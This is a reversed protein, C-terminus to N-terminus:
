SRTWATGNWHLILTTGAAGNSFVGGVAWIDTASLASVSRLGSSTGFFPAKAKTWSTGDWHLVLPKGATGGDGVDHGYFGVAWADTASVAAVGMLSNFVSSGTGAPNPSPQRTWTTGDWHLVLSQDFFNGGAGVAWVDTPSLPSVALLTGIGSPTAVQTWATGNWHLVLAQGTSANGVAWVDTASLATVAQLTDQAANPVPVQTWATGNWHLALAVSGTNETFFGVAWVDTPSLASVSDLNDFKVGGSGSGPSPVPVRAWRTGNWHLVLNVVGASTSREGVAWADSASDASVATAGGNSVTVRAWASGNWHFFAHGQVTGSTGVGWADSASVASVSSLVGSFQTVPTPATPPAAAAALTVTLGLGGALAGAARAKGGRAWHSVVAIDM